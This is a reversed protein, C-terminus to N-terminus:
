DNGSDPKPKEGEAMANPKMALLLMSIGLIVVVFTVGSGIWATTWDRTVMLVVVLAFAALVGGIAVYEMPAM